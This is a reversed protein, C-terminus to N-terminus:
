RGMWDTGAYPMDIVPCGLAKLTAFAVPVQDLSPRGRVWDYTFPEFCHVRYPGRPTGRRLYFRADTAPFPASPDDSAPQAAPRVYAPGLWRALVQWYQDWNSVPWSNGEHDVEDIAAAAPTGWWDDGDGTSSYGSSFELAIVCDPCAARTALIATDIKTKDDQPGAYGPICSDYCPQLKVYRALDIPDTPQPRLAAIIAPMRAMYADFGDDGSMFIRPVFPKGNAATHQIVDKVLARFTAPDNTFDAPPVLQGSGFPQGSEGYEWKWSVTIDTDGWSAIQAYSAARDAANLSVWATPWWHLDGFQSTHLIAGQFSEHADLIEDRTPPDPFIPTLTVAVNQDHDNTFATAGSVYGVKTAVMNRAGAPVGLFLHYGDGNTEAAQGEIQCLAGVIPAGGPGTVVCADNYTAPAPNIIAIPLPSITGGRLAGACGQLTLLALLAAATATLMAAARLRDKLIM